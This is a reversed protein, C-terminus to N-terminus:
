PTPIVELNTMTSASYYTATSSKMAMGAFVQTDMAIPITALITFSGGYERYSYSAILNGGKRELRLWVPQDTSPLPGDVVASLSGGDATRYQLRVRQDAGVLLSIMRSTDAITNRIMLGAFSNSIAQVSHIRGQIVFDGSAPVHSFTFRDDTGAVNRHYLTTEGRYNWTLGSTKGLQTKQWQTAPLFGNANAPGSQSSQGNFYPNFLYSDAALEAQLAPFNAAFFAFPDEFFDRDWPPNGGAEEQEYTPYNADRAYNYIKWGSYPDNLGTRGILGWMESIPILKYQCRPATNWNGSTGLNM